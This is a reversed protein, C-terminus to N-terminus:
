NNLNGNYVMGGQLYQMHVTNLLVCKKYDSVVQKESKFCM